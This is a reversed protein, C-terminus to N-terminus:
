KQPYLAKLLSRFDFATIISPLIIPRRASEGEREESDGKEGGQPLNFM